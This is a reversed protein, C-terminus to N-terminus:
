KQPLIIRFVTGKGLESNLVFIKGKHYNEIIRKALSLGLGWGRKKSTFGPKFVNKYNNKAIGKGTDSIDLYLQKNKENLTFSLRGKGEMADVANKCLNEIVWSFLEKNLKINNQQLNDKRIIFEVKDSTRKRLYEVCSDVIEEINREKLVPKSGIKSFREAITELRSVDKQMERTLNPDIDSASILEMWAMLSSIPTGLQHATEKSMGVWVRNQESKKTYSFAWFSILIFAIIVGLQIFPYLALRKILSSEDYYVFNKGTILDIEIVHSIRKMAEIRNQLYQLSDKSSFDVNHYSIVQNNQDTLIVPITENQAMIQSVLSVDQDPNTDLTKVGTAWLEVKKTEEHALQNVLNNTYFLSGAVIIAAILLFIYKWHQNQLYLDM